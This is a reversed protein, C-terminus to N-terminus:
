NDKTIWGAAILHPGNYIALRQGPTVATLPTALQVLAKDGQRTVLAPQPAQRYRTQVLCELKEADFDLWNMQDATFSQTLLKSADTSVQVNNTKGDIAVVYAPKGLAVGLKKRQGITFLHVGHHQTLVNGADDLMNGRASSERFYRSLTTAFTEGPYGFCADQSDKKAFNPLGLDKALQRVQAKDMDGLPMHCFNLQEQSLGSLFYTQDKEANKGKLLRARAPDTRDIIAYHGTIIGVAGMKKAFTMMEGGFKIFHNCQVCPNPTRGAKYEQWSYSLVKADFDQIAPVFHHEIGLHKAVIQVQENDQTGCCSKTLEEEDSVQNKMQLTAGIVNYGKKIYISAAVSSDVGGSMAAVLTPKTNM